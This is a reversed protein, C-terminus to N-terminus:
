AIAPTLMAQDGTEPDELPMSRRQRKPPLADGQHLSDLSEYYRTLISEARADSIGIDRMESDLRAKLSRLDSRMEDVLSEVKAAREKTAAYTKEDLVRIRHQRILKNRLHLAKAKLKLKELQQNEAAVFAQRVGPNTEVGLVGQGSSLLSRAECVLEEYSIKYSFSGRGLGTPLVDSGFPVLAERSTSGTPATVDNSDGKARQQKEIRTMMGATDIVAGLSKASAILRKWRNALQEDTMSAPSDVNSQKLSKLDFYGKGFALNVEVRPSMHVNPIITAVVTGTGYPTEVKRSLWTSALECSEIKTSRDWDQLNSVNLGGDGTVSTSESAQTAECEMMGSGKAKLAQLIDRMVSGAKASGRTRTRGSTGCIDLCEHQLV